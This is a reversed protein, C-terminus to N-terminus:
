KRVGTGENGEESTIERFREANLERRVSSNM